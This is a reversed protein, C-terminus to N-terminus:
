VSRGFGEGWAAVTYYLLKDHVDISATLTTAWSPVLGRAHRTARWAADTRALAGAGAQIALACRGSVPTMAPQVGAFAPSATVLSLVALTSAVATALGVLRGRARNSRTTAVDM